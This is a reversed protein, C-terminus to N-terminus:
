GIQKKRFWNQFNYNGVGEVDTSIYKTVFRQHWYFLDTSVWFNVAVCVSYISQNSVSQVSLSFVCVLSVSRVSQIPVSQVSQDSVSQGSLSQISLSIQCLSSM